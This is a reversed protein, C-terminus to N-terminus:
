IKQHRRPPVPRLKIGHQDLFLKFQEGQFAGYAHIAGPTWFQSFWISELALITESISTSPVVLGASYRSSTDM